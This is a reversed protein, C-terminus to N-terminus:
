ARLAQSASLEHTRGPRRGTGGAAVRLGATSAPLRGSPRGPPTEAPRLAPGGTPRGPATRVRRARSHRDTMHRRPSRGPDAGGARPPRAVRGCVSVAVRAFNSARNASASDGTSPSRAISSVVSASSIRCRSRSSSASAVTTAARWVASRCISWWWSRHSTPLFPDLGGFPPRVAQSEGQVPAQEIKQLAAVRAVYNVSAHSAVAEPCEGVLELLWQEPM